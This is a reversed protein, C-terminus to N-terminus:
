LRHFSWSRQCYTAPKSYESQHNEAAKEEQM